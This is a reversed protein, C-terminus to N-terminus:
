CTAHLTTWLRKPSSWEDVAGHFCLLHEVDKSRPSGFLKLVGGDDNGSAPGVNGRWVSKPRESPTVPILVHQLQENM